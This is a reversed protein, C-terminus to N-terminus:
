RSQASTRCARSPKLRGAKRSMGIWLLDSSRLMRRHSRDLRLSSQVSIVSTWNHLPSAADSLLFINAPMADAVQVDKLDGIQSTRGPNALGSAARLAENLDTTRNTTQISEIASRLLRRDSTFGQRVDARDNFAIVMAVDSASMSDLMELARKKAASLRNPEVDTAQMSCSNDIMFIARNGLSEDGRFGPRLCALILAAIVLLQLLLLLNKRLRQWISNVHLDEITRQWLYTSPVAVPTRRLKLFYLMVILPPIAAMILWQWWSLMNILSM